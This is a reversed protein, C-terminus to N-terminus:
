GGSRHAAHALGSPVVFREVAEQAPAKGPIALPIRQASRPRALSQLSRVDPRVRGVGACIARYGAGVRDGSGRALPLETLASHLTGAASDEASWPGHGGGGDAGPVNSGIGQEGATIRAMFTM